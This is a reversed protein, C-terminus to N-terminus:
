YQLIRKEQEFSRYKKIDHFTRSQLLVYKM